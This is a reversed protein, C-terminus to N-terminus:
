ECVTVFRYGEEALQPLIIELAQATPSSEGEFDHMLVVAGPFVKEAVGEAVLVADDLRWDESNIDWLVLQYGKEAASARTYSDLTSYPPRLCKGARGDVRQATAEAEDFFASRGADSLTFHRATHSGLSHRTDGNNELLEKYEQSKDATSFFAAQAQNEELADLLLPTGGRGSPGGEFTFYLVRETILTSASDPSIPEPTGLSSTEPIPLRETDGVVEGNDDRIWGEGGDFCCARWWRTEETVGLNKGTIHIAEGKDLQGIVKFGLGPGARVGVPGEAEPIFYPEPPIMSTRGGEGSIDLTFKYDTDGGVSVARVSYDQTNPLEGSWSTREDEVSSLVEGYEEGVISLLVTDHPSSLNFTLIQGALGRLMYHDTGNFQIEGEILIENEESQLDIRKIDTEFHSPNAAVETKQDEEMELGNEGISFSVQRQTSPCCVPDGPTYEDLTVNIRGNEIEMLRVFVAQGLEVSPLARAFGAENIAVLLHHSPEGKGTDLVLILAADASGDGDLDGYVRFPALNIEWGDPIGSASGDMLKVEEGDLGAPRFTINTLKQWDLEDPDVEPQLATTDDEQHPISGLIEVLQFKLMTGGDGPEEVVQSRILLEYEFGPQYDFGDISGYFITWDDEPSDKILLCEREEGNVCNVKNAAVFITKHNDNQSAPICSNLPSVLLILLMGWLLHYTRLSNLLKGRDSM